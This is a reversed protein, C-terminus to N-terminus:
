AARVVDLQNWQLNERIMANLLTLLKRMCAVIVVKAPKGTSKLRRAFREIVPNHTMAALTAMYLANRIAGRGGRISRKGKRKGSDDNFPAVGVLASVKRKDTRGLESLGGLLTASLTKGVGPVSKLLTDLHRFDDDSDILKAIKEDLSQIEQAITKLVADISKLAAKSRVLRRRNSQETRVVLLQRRCTVLADLEARQTSVRETVRPAVRWAFEALVRADLADTGEAASLAPKALIGLSKALQRVRGPHVLAVSLGADLLTELLLREYGGSSEVVVLTPAISRLHDVIAHRGAPDNAVHLITDSGTVALDLVDKAVDIGVFLNSPTM